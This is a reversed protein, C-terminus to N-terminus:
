NPRTKVGARVASAIRKSAERYSAVRLDPLPGSLADV